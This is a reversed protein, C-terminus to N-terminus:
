DQSDDPTFFSKKNGEDPIDTWGQFKWSDIKVILFESRGSYDLITDSDLFISYKVDRVLMEKDGSPYISIEWKVSLDPYRAKQTKLNNIFIDKGIRNEDGRINYYFSEEFLENLNINNAGGAGISKMLENFNFPDSTKDNPFLPNEFNDRPVFIGCGSIV